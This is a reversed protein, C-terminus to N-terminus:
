YVSSVNLEVIRLTPLQKVMVMSDVSRWLHSKCHSGGTGDTQNVHAIRMQYMSYHRISATFVLMVVNRDGSSTGSGVKAYNVWRPSATSYLTMPIVWCTGPYYSVNLVMGDSLSAPTTTTKSYIMLAYIIYIYVHIYLFGNCHVPLHCRTPVVNTDDNSLMIRNSCIVVM